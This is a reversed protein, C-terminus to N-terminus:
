NCEKSCECLVASNILSGCSIFMLPVYLPIDKVELMNMVLLMAGVLTQLIAVYWILRINKPADKISKFNRVMM